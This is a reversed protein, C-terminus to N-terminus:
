KRRSGSTDRQANQARGIGSACPLAQARCAGRCDKWTNGPRRALPQAASASIYMNRAGCAVSTGRALTLSCSSLNALSSTWRQRVQPTCATPRTLRAVLQARFSRTLSAPALQNTGLQSAGKCGRVFLQNHAPHSCPYNSHSSLGFAGGSAPHNDNQRAVTIARM